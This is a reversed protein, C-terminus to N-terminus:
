AFSGQAPHGGKRPHASVKRYEPKLLAAGAPHSGKRPHASVKRYEPKHLAADTLVAAKKQYKKWAAAHKRVCILANGSVIFSLKGFIGQWIFARAM